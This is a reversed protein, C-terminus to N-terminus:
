PKSNRPSYPQASIGYRTGPGRPDSQIGPNSIRQIIARLSQCGYLHAKARSATVGSAESAESVESVESVESPAPSFVSRGSSCYTGGSERDTGQLARQRFQGFRRFRGFLERLGWTNRGDWPWKGRVGPRDRTSRATRITRITRFTRAFFLFAKKQILVQNKKKKRPLKDRM